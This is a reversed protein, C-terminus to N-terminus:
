GALLRLELNHPLTFEPLRAQENYFLTRLLDIKQGVAFAVSPRHSKSKPQVKLEDLSARLLFIRVQLFHFKISGSYVFSFIYEFLEGVPDVPAFDDGVSADFLRYIKEVAELLIDGHGFKLIGTQPFINYSCSGLIQDM